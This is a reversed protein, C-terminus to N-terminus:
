KGTSAYWFVWIVVARISIVLGLNSEHWECKVYRDWYHHCGSNKYSCLLLSKEDGRCKVSHLWIKGTAKLHFWRHEEKVNYFGLERCAVRANTISFTSERYCTTGWEGQHFIEIRGKLPVNSAGLRIYTQGLFICNFM